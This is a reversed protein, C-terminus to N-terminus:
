NMLAVPWKTLVPCLKENESTLERLRGQAQELACQMARLDRAYNDNMTLIMRLHEIEARTLTEGNPTTLREPGFEYGTWEPPLIRGARHLELIRAAPASPKRAGTRYLAATKISVDCLEAIAKDQFEAFTM